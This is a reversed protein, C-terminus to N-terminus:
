ANQPGACHHGHAMSSLMAPLKNQGSSAAVIGPLDSHGQAQEALQGRRHTLFPPRPILCCRKDKALPQSHLCTLTRLLTCM